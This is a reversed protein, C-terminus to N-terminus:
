EKSGFLFQKKFVIGPGLLCWLNYMVIVCQTGGSTQHFDNQGLFNFHDCTVTSAFGESM